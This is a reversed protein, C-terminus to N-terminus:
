NAVIVLAHRLVTDKRRFGKLVVTKVTNEALAEDTVHDMAEHLMPDFKEGEAPIEEVELRGFAQELSRMTLRIGELFAEDECPQGLARSLNDYVTLMERLASCCGEDGATRSIEANRKRYNAYEQNTEDMRSQLADMARRSVLPLTM